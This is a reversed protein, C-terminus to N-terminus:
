KLKKLKGEVMRNIQEPTRKKGKRKESSKRISEISRTRGKLSNSIKQKTEKSLVKGKNVESLRRKQEDSIIQSKGKLSLLKKNSESVKLGSCGKGKDALNALIGNSIIKGYLSIFEEEKKIIFNHDNSELLIEVEYNTKKVIDKWIKNRNVSYARKYEAKETMFNEGNKTGVGIYFPENKDIRIHRYLYYKNM